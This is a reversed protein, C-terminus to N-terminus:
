VSRLIPSQRLRELAKAEIQRIRERTVGFKKGAEELTHCIGDEFGHRFKLVDREKPPLERLADGVRKSKWFVSADDVVKDEDEPSPLELYNPLDSIRLETSEIIKEKQLKDIESWNKSFALLEKPFLDHVDVKFYKAIKAAEEESPARMCREIAGYYTQSIGINFACTKQDFGKSERLNILSLHHADVKFKIQSEIKEM